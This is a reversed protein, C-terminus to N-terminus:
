DIPQPKPFKIMFGGNVGVIRAMSLDTWGYKNTIPDPQQGCSDYFDAVSVIKYMSLAENMQMLVNEADSRKGFIINNFDFMSNVKSITNSAQNKITNYSVYAFKSGTSTNNYRNASSVGLLSDVFTSIGNKIMPVFTDVACKTVYSHIDIADEPLFTDIIKSMKGKKVTQISGSTVKTLKKSEIPASKNEKSKFSNSQYNEM